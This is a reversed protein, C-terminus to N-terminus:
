SKIFYYISDDVYHLPHTLRYKSFFEDIAQKCGPFAGYDDIIVVGRNVVQSYLNFMVEATPEYFDADIRLLAIEKIQSRFVPLTEHFWGKVLHIKDHPYGSSRLYELVELYDAKNISTGNYKSSLDLKDFDVGQIWNSGHNGDQQSPLPMGEFSDFGWYDTLQLNNRLLSRLMFASAGGTFVGAEVYSGAVNNSKLYRVIAEINVVQPLSRYTFKISFCYDNIIDGRSDSFFNNSKLNERAIKRRSYLLIRRLLYEVFPISRLQRRLADKIPTYSHSM